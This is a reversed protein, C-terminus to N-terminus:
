EEMKLVHYRYQMQCQWVFLLPVRPFSRAAVFETLPYYRQQTHYYPPPSSQHERNIPQPRGCQQLPVVPVQIRM